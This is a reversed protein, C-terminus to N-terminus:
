AADSPEEEGAHPLIQDPVLLGANRLEANTAWRAGEDSVSGTQILRWVLPTFAALVAIAVAWILPSPIPPLWADGIDPFARVLALLGEGSTGPLTSGLISGVVIGVAWLLAGGALVVVAVVIAAIELPSRRGTM